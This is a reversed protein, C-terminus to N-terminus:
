AHPPLTSSAPRPRPRAVEENTILGEKTLLKTVAKKLRASGEGQRGIIMGPRSTEIIVRVENQGREIEISGVHMGRLERELFRRVVIDGRLFQRYTDRGGFWRSKWDRIIGLRHSYPHVTHTM